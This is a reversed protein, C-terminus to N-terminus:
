PQFAKAPTSRIRRTLRTAEHETIGAKFRYIFRTDAISVTFPNAKAEVDSAQAMARVAAIFGAQSEVVLHEM